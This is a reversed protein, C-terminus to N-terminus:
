ALTEDLSHPPRMPCNPSPVSDESLAKDRRTDTSTAQNDTDRIPKTACSLIDEECCYCVVYPRGFSGEGEDRVIHQRCTWEDCLYCMFPALRNCGREHCTAFSHSTLDAEALSLRLPPRQPTFAPVPPTGSDHPKTDPARPLGTLPAPRTLTPAVSQPAIQDIRNDPM